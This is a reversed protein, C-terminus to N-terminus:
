SRVSINLEELKRYFTSRSIGLASSTEVINGDFLSLAHVILSQECSSLFNGYFSPDLESRNRPLPLEVSGVDLLNKREARVLDPVDIRERRNSKLDAVVSGILSLLQKLNGPWIQSKLFDVAGETLFHSKLKYQSLYASVIIEIDELRERLPPLRVYKFIRSQRIFKPIERSTLLLRNEVSIKSNGYKMKICGSSAFEVIKTQLGVSLYDFDSILLDGLHSDFLAGRKETGKGILASEIRSKPIKSIKFHIFPRCPDDKIKWFYKALSAKGSGPEGMLVIHSGKAKECKIFERLGKVANSSGLTLLPDDSTAEDRHSEAIRRNRSRNLCEPIKLLLDECISSLSSTKVVYDEAGLQFAQKVEHIEDDHTLIIIALHPFENVYSPLLQVGTPSDQGLNNDLLLVDYRNNRLARLSEEYSTVLDIKWRGGLYKAIATQTIFDKDDLSLINLQSM